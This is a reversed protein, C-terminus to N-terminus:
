RILISRMTRAKAPVTINVLTAKDWQCEGLQSHSAAKTPALMSWDANVPNQGKAMNRLANPLFDPGAKSYSESIYRYVM